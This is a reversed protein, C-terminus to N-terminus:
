RGQRMVQFVLLRRDKQDKAQHTREMILRGVMICSGNGYECTGKRMGLIESGRFLQLCLILM